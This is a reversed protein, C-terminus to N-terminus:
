NACDPAFYFARELQLSLKVRDGKRMPPRGQIPV